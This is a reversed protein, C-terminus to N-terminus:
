NGGGGFEYLKDRWKVAALAFLVSHISTISNNVNRSYFPVVVGVSFIRKYCVYIHKM